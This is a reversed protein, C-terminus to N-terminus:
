RSGPAASQVGAAPTESGTVTERLAWPWFAAIALSASCLLLFLRYDGTADHTTAGILTSIGGGLAVAVMGVSLGRGGVSSPLYKSVVYALMATETGTAIGIFTTIAIDFPGQPAAALALLALIPLLLMLSALQKTAIKDLLLGAGVNGVFLGVGLLSQGIIAEAPTHAREELFPVLHGQVGGYGLAAFFAWGLIVYLSRTAFLVRWGAPKTGKAATTPTKEIPRLLIFAPIASLVIVQGGLAIFAGKWGINTVLAGAILPNAIAGLCAGAFLVGLATGRRESFADSVVKALPVVSAGFSAAYSLLFLASFSLQATPLLGLALLCTVQVALSSLVLSRIRLRDTAWGAIPILIPALLTAIVLVSYTATRSWGFETEIAEAFVGFTQVLFGIASFALVLSAGVLLPWGSSSKRPIAAEHTHPKM